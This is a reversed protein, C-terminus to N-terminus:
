MVDATQSAGACFFGLRTEAAPYPILIEAAIAAGIRPRRVRAPKM